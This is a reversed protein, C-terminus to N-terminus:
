LGLPTAFVQEGGEALIDEFRHVYARCEEVRDIIVKARVNDRHFRIVAHRDDAIFISDGLSALHPPSEFVTMTQPHNALLRMLRPSNRRFPEANRVVIRATHQRDTALFRQLIESNDPPELKLKTLDEDFICLSRSALALITQLASDHEAWSSILRSDM